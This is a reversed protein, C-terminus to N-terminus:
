KEKFQIVVAGEQLTLKVYAVKGNPCPVHYVDQWVRYDAHTTMSKFFMQRTMSCVAACVDPGSMGFKSANQLATWTLANVGLRQVEAQIDTLKYHPTGKEM